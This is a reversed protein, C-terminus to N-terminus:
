VENLYTGVKIKDAPLDMVGIGPVTPKFSLHHQLIQKVLDVLHDPAEIVMSDHVQIIVEAAGHTWKELDADIRIMCENMWASVMEQIPYNVIDNQKFGARFWRIRGSYCGRYHGRTRVEEQISRWWLPIAPHLAEWQLKLAQIESLEIDPFLPDDTEADRTARLVEYITEPMAGYNCNSVFVSHDLAFNHTPHDVELDWVEREGVAEISVVRHNREKRRENAAAVHAVRAVANWKKGLARAHAILKPSNRRSEALAEMREPSWAAKANASREEFTLTALGGPHELRHERHTMQTLNEPRNDNRKGNQHHVVNSEGGVWRHEYTRSGDNYPDLERYGIKMTYRRFPMLRDGPQLRGAETYSGDRMLMRHDPTLTITKLKNAGDRITLEICEKMGHCFVHKVQTPVYKVGDWAWTWDGPAVECIPVSGRADLVAVPTAEDLCAFVFGKALRRIAEWRDKPCVPLDEYRQDILRPCAEQLFAETQMNTDVGPNRIKFLLTANLTHVNIARRYAELLDPDRTHYAIVRLEAQSLDTAVLKHGPAACFMAKIKKSFNQANPSSALRGSVTLLKWSPHLRGDGLIPLGEIWTSLIKEAKRWKVLAKLAIAREPFEDSTQLALLAMANKDTSPAGKDTLSAVTFKLVEFLFRRLHLPSGPKFLAPEGGVTYGDGALSRLTELAEARMARYQIGMEDRRALDVGIGRYTAKTMVKAIQIEQEYLKQQDYDRILRMLPPMIRITVLCDRACYSRLRWDELDLWKVDGKVDDKWYPAELFVSSVFALSHPLEGDVVHHAAMSDAQWGQVPLNCARLVVTDYSGNHFTKPSAPDALYHSLWTLVRMLDLQDWYAHGYQKLFPICLCDGDDLAMGVCLIQCALPQEGTTEIDVATLRGTARQLFAYVEEATPFLRWFRTPCLCKGPEVGFVYPCDGTHVPKKEWITNENWSPKRKTLRIAKALDGVVTKEFRAEGMDGDTSRLLFSPHLTPLLIM